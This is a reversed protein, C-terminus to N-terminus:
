SKLMDLEDQELLDGTVDSLYKEGEVGANELSEAIRITSDKDM